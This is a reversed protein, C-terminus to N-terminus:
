RSRGDYDILLDKNGSFHVPKGQAMTDYKQQLDKGAYYGVVFGNRKFFAQAKEPKQHINWLFRMAYWGPKIGDFEYHGQGDPKIRPLDHSCGELIGKVRDVAKQDYPNVQKTFLKACKEDDFYQLYIDADDILGDSDRLTGMVRGPRDTTPSQVFNYLGETGPESRGLYPASKPPVVLTTAFLIGLNLWLFAGPKWFHNPM